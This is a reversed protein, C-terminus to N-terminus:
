RCGCSAIAAVFRDLAARAENTGAGAVMGVFVLLRGSDDVVSGALANAGTLTGTKARARGAADHNAGSLRDAMTGTLGGIPLGDLAQRLVPHRGDYGLVLVDSLLDARVRNERSLGSADSLTVGRTDLGLAAVQSVVWAGVRDFATGAGSRYAAQRALIETLANDSDTLALALQERVPASEVSGLVSGPGSTPVASAGATGNPSMSQAASPSPGSSTGSGDTPSTPAKAAPRSPTPMPSGSVGPAPGRPALRVTVGMAGLQRAFAARVAAVPDAPGPAGGAARQTSLGLMAVAGTIGSSRFTPAWTPATTPGDAYTEDVYLTIARTGQAKLRTAVQAALDALGARGAVALPDGKGPSLLSDGGAVLVVQDPRDGERVVTRLTEDPAFVQGIATASLLKTTSAPIRLDSGRQDLLVQGTQGDRVVLASDRLAPLARVAALAKAVGGTSPVEAEGALSPLLPGASTPLTPQPVFPLTRTAVTETPPPPPLPRMTLVGPAADAVDLVAYGLLVTVLSWGLAWLYHRRRPPGDHTVTAM